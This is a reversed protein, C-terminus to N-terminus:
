EYKPHDIVQKKTQEDLLIIALTSYVILDLLTDRVSEDSVQQDRKEWLLTKVREFKRNLDFYRGIMGHEKWAPRTGNYDSHKKDHLELVEDLIEAFGPEKM